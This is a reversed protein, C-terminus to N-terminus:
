GHCACYLGGPWDDGVSDPEPRYKPSCGLHTCIAVIVGIEPRISRYANTCYGPQQDVKSEPDRLRETIADLTELEGEDRRYVMVPKGRWEINITQGPKLKSIDQEVPAGAAQARASPNWYNLFPVATFGAGVAGVATTTWTLFRRRGQNVGEEDM